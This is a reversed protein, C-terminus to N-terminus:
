KLGVLSPIELSDTESLRDLEELDIFTMKIEPEPEKSIDPVIRAGEVSMAPSMAASPAQFVPAKKPKKADEELKKKKKAQQVEAEEETEKNFLYDEYEARDKRAQEAAQEDDTMSLERMEDILKDNDESLNEYNAEYYHTLVDHLPLDNVVHLPTSFEKSYWRMIRRLAYEPTSADRTVERMALIRLTKYYDLPM